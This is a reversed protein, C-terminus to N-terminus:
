RIRWWPPALSISFVVIKTITTIKHALVHLMDDRKMMQMHVAAHYNKLYKALWSKGTNGTAEWYWNVARNAPTLEEQLREVLEAQWPRLVPEYPFRRVLEVHM